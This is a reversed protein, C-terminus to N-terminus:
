KDFTDRDVLNMMSSILSSILLVLIAYFSFKENDVFCVSLTEKRVTQKQKQKLTRITTCSTQYENLSM